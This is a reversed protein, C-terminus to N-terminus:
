GNLQAIRDLVIQDAKLKPRRSLLEQVRPIAAHIVELDSWSLNSIDGTYLWEVPLSVEDKLEVAARMPKPVRKGTEYM